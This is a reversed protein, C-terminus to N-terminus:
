RNRSAAQKNLTAEQMQADAALHLTLSAYCLATATPLPLISVRCGVTLAGPEISPLPMRLALSSLMDERLHRGYAQRSAARRMRRAQAHYVGIRDQSGILGLVSKTEILRSVASGGARRRRALRGCRGGRGSYKLPNLVPVQCGSFTRVKLTEAQAAAGQSGDVDSETFNLYRFSSIALHNALLMCVKLTEAQAAAGQSGDVDGEEGLKESQRVLDAIKPTLM